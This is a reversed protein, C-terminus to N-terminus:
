PACADSFRADPALAITAEPGGAAALGDLAPGLARLDAEVAPRDACFCSWGAMETLTAQIPPRLADRLCAPAASWAATVAEVPAKAAGLQGCGGLDTTQQMWAPYQEATGLDLCLGGLIALCPGIGGTGAGIALYVTEGPQAGTLTLTV